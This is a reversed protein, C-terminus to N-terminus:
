DKFDEKAGGPRMPATLMGVKKRRKKLGEAKGWADLAGKPAPASAPPKKLKLEAKKKYYEGKLSEDEWPKAESM